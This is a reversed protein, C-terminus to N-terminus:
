TASSEEEDTIVQVTYLYDEDYELTYKEKLEEYDSVVAEQRMDSDVDLKWYAETNGSFYMIHYGYTTKVIGTDGAKRSSDFCWDNFETVMQGEYVNEYLGGNTNSGTDESYKNALEAFSDETAEGDKWEKYVEEAKAKAEEDSDYSDSKILIHRINKCISEDRYAPKIMMVVTYTDTGSIVTTDLEQRSGDFIWKEIDSSVAYPYKTSLTAEVKTDIAEAIEEDTMSSEETSSESSATTSSKTVLEPNKELYKKVNAKFEKETKCDALSNAYAKAKENAAEKEEDTADTDYEATFVYSLFDAYQYSTKNETYYNEYDTDSYEYGDYLKNYYKQSLREIQMLYELQEQTVGEGWYKTIYEDVSMSNSSASETIYAINEQIAELDSEDLTMGEAKAAEALILRQDMGSKTINMFYDYWTTEDDESYYQEKLDVTSDIGSYSDYYNMYTRYNYNFLYSMIPLPIKYNDSKVVIDDGFKPVVSTEESVRSASSTSVNSSEDTGDSNNCGTLSVSMLMTGAIIAAFIRKRLSNNETM